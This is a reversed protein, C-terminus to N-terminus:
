RKGTKNKAQGKYFRVENSTMLLNKGFKTVPERAMAQIKQGKIVRYMVEIKREVSTPKFSM